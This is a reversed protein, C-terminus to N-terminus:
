AQDFFGQFRVDAKFLTHQEVFNLFDGRWLLKFHDGGEMRLALKNIVPLVLEPILPHMRGEDKIVQQKSVVQYQAKSLQRHSAAKAFLRVPLAGPEKLPSYVSARAEALTVM